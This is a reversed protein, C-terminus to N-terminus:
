MKLKDLINLYGQTLLHQIALFESLFYVEFEVFQVGEEEQVGM